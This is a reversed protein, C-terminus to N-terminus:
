NKHLHQVVRGTRRKGLKQQLRRKVRVDFRKFASLVHTTNEKISLIKNTKYMINETPTSITINRLNRDIGIASEPKIEKINKRISISLTTPTIVFSRPQGELLKSATYNTLLINIFQRNKVPFSFLMGNIKFGYCSVLYSKRVYPSRPTRGKKIDKKMQSLRGCAQSIANLKYYSLIDYQELKHYALGSLKKLTSCDNELGTRICDNVMQRFTEMMQSMEKNPSLPQQISKIAFM